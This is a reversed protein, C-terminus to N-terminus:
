QGHEPMDVPKDPIDQSRARNISKRTLQGMSSAGYGSTFVFIYLLLDSGLNSEIAIEIIRKTDPSALTLLLPLFAGTLKGVLHRWDFGTTPDDLWVQLFPLVVAAIFGLGYVLLAVEFM